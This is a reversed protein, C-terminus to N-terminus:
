NWGMGNPGTTPYQPDTAAETSEETTETDPQEQETQEPVPETQAPIQETPVEPTQETPVDPTQENQEGTPETQTPPQQAPVDTKNKYVANYWILAAFALALLVAIGMFIWRWVKKAM